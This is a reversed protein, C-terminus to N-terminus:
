NVNISNIIKKIERFNNLWYVFLDNEEFGLDYILPDKEYTKKFYDIKYKLDKPVVVDLQELFYDKLLFKDFYPLNIEVNIIKDLYKVTTESSQHKISDNM